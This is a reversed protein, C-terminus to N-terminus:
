FPITTTCRRKEKNVFRKRQVHADSNNKRNTSQAPRTQHSTHKRIGATSSHLITMSQDELAFANTKVKQVYTCVEIHKSENRTSLLYPLSLTTWLFARVYSTPWLFGLFIRAKKSVVEKGTSSISRNDKLIAQGSAATSPFTQRRFASASAYSRSGSPSATRSQFSSSPKGDRNREAIATVRRTKCMWPFTYFQNYMHVFSHSARHPSTLRLDSADFFLSWCRCELSDDDYVAM